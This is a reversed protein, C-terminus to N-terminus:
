LRTSLSRSVEGGTSVRSMADAFSGRYSKLEDSLRLLKLEYECKSTQALYSCFGLIEADLNGPHVNGAGFEVIFPINIHSTVNHAINRGSPGFYFM